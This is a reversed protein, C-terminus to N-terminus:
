SSHGLDRPPITKKIHVDLTNALANDPYTDAADAGDRFFRGILVSQRRKGTGSISVLHSEVHGLAGPAAITNTILTTTGPTAGINVWAYELGWVVNGTNTTTPAWHLDIDLDSDETYSNNLHITIFLEREQNAVFSWVYVGNSGAGDTAVQTFTPDNTGAAKASSLPVSIEANRPGYIYDLREKISNEVHGNAWLSIWGLEELDDVIVGSYRKDGLSRTLLELTQKIASLAEVTNEPTPDPINPFAAGKQVDHQDVLRPDNYVGLRKHATSM